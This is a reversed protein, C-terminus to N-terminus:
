KSQLNRVVRFETDNLANRQRHRNDKSTTKRDITTVYKHFYGNSSSSYVPQGNRYLIRTFLRQLCIYKKIHFGLINYNIRTNILM